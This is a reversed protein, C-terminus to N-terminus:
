RRPFLEVFQPGRDNTHKFAGDLFMQDRRSIQPRPPPPPAEIEVPISQDMDVSGPPTPFGGQIRGPNPAEMQTVSALELGSSKAKQAESELVERRQSTAVRRKEAHLSRLRAQGESIQAELLDLEPSPM